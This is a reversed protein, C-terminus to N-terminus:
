NFRSLMLRLEIGLLESVSATGSLRAVALSPCTWFFMCTLAVTYRIWFGGKGVRGYVLAAMLQLKLESWARETVCVWEWAFQIRAEGVGAIKAKSRPRRRLLLPLRASIV